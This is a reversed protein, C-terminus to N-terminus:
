AASKNQPDDSTENLDEANIEALQANLSEITRELSRLKKRMEPLRKLSMMQRGKDEAVDAPIGMYNQHGALDKHVGTKAGLQVMDGITVHDAIGVQGGAIVYNGTTVSGAICVQSAFLNHKGIHCNHAIMVLNDMKTGEGIITPGIAGRDITSSAGIEVDNGVILGGLHPIHEHRGNNTRYGFGEGGLVSGGQVKVRDGLVVDHYIVVNPYLDVDDGVKSNIGIFVGPHINCREGIQVGDCIHAGPHINTNAGISATASISADPSIGINQTARQPRLQLLVKTFACDVDTTLIYTCDLERPLKDSLEESVVCVGANSRALKRLFSAKSVFSLHNKQALHLPQGDDIKVEPDGLVQGNVLLAIEQATM